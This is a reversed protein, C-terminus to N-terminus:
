ELVGNEQKLQCIVEQTIKMCECYKNGTCEKPVEKMDQIRLCREIIQNWEFENKELTFAKIKQDNKCEYLVTGQDYNGLNLYTQLQIRHEPKPRRLAAFGRQNISKLEIPYIHGDQHKILFDIRGSIPPNENKVSVERELLLNLEEFWKSFREELYSGNEFIRKLNSPMPSPPLLGNFSLWIVRDCTNSISSPYFVGKRPSDMIGELHNDITEILWSDERSPSERLDRGANKAIDILSGM